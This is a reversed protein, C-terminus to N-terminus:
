NFLNGFLQQREARHRDKPNTQGEFSDVDAFNRDYVFGFGYTFRFSNRITALLPAIAHTGVRIVDNPKLYLDPDKGDIIRALDWQTIEERDADLRRRIECRTPWALQDFGGAAAIAQTLTIQEGALSYPGPRAVHGAMYYVGVPGPDVRIWDDHIVVINYSPDGNRLKDAPIRIVRQQLESALEEWDVPQTALPPPPVPEGRVMNPSEPAPQGAGPSGPPVEVFGDNVFKYSPLGSTTGPAQSERTAPTGNATGAAPGPVNAPSVASGERQPAAADILDAPVEEAPLALSPGAPRTGAQAQAPAAPAPSSMSGQFDAMLMPTVPPPPMPPATTGTGSPQGAPTATDHVRRQRPPNRYVWVMKITDDMGGGQNIAERLRFDPKPIRYPGPYLVSGSLNYMRQMPNAVVVTMTPEDEPHYIGLSKARQIIDGRLERATRGEAQVLGIQPLDINGLEDVLPTLETEIGLQVFDLLRIQLMDGPGIQYETVDAVLDEPKPDEAGVIGLPTDRFSIARQIDSVVNEHYNGPETPDLFANWWSNSVGGDCGACLLAATAFALIRGPATFYMSNSVRVRQIVSHIGERQRRVRDM